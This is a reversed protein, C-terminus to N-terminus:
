SGVLVSIGSLFSSGGSVGSSKPITCTVNLYTVNIPPSGISTTHPPANTAGTPFTTTASNWVNNGSQDLGAVKCTYAGATTSRNWYTAQIVYLQSGSLAGQPRAWQIGCNVTASNTTSTNNAGFTSQVVGGGICANGHVWIDDYTQAGAAGAFALLAAGIASMRVQRSLKM